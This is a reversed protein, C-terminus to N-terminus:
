LRAGQNPTNADTGQAYQMHAFVNIPFVRRMRAFGYLPLFRTVNPPRHTDKNDTRNRDTTTIASKGRHRTERGEIRSHVFPDDRWQATENPVIANTRRPRKWHAFHVRPVSRVWAAHRVKCSTKQERKATAMGEM